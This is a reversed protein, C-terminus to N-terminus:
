CLTEGEKIDNWAMAQAKIVANRGVNAGSAVVAIGWHEKDDVNEPREGISAGPEVVVNEAIIAYQVVAGQKIVSGPMIISDRVIADSEITVGEFLVSFDVYGGVNCGEAVVSNQIQATEAIYHPPKVPNQGLVRM